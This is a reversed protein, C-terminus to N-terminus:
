VARVTLSCWVCGFQPVNQWTGPRCDGLLDHVSKLLGKLSFSALCVPRQLVGLPQVSHVRETCLVHHAVPWFLCLRLNPPVLPVKVTTATHNHWIIGQNLLFVHYLLTM